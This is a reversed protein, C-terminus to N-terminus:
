QELWVNTFDGNRPVLHFEFGGVRDSHLTPTKAWIVPVWAADETAVADAQAWLAEAEEPTPAALAEDILGNLEDNNYGGYNPTGSAYGRGDLLIPIYSRGAFFDAFWSVAAIDWGGSETFEHNLLYDGYFANRQAFVLEVDFGAEGLVQELLGALTRGEQEDTWLLKVPVGDPYGAETLLERAREPDGGPPVDLPNIDESGPVQPPLIHFALDALSPGGLIQQVAEKDIAFNLAQRVLPNAFAGDANPSKTNIVIYPNIAGAGEIVLREDGAAVLAPIEQNPVITEGWQMDVTGAIIQQFVAENEQGMTIEIRDVYAERLDDTEPDWNPNREFVYSQDPVYEVVQYPGNEVINQRLEPSDALYDLYEVPQPAANRFLALIYIFDSAPQTLTFQVTSDDIATVGSIENSEIYERIPEIEPAVEAFGDCYERLGAITNLYYDRAASGQVPNCMRKVGLVVDGAVVPRPEDVNWMVGDRLHITYTLGDESIGGNEQTPVELAIDPRPTAKDEITGEAKYDFLGRLTMRQFQYDAASYAAAPDMWLVDPGGAVILTGGQQPESSGSAATSGVGAGAVVLIAATTAAVLRGSGLRRSRQQKM